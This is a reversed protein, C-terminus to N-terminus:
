RVVRAVLYASGALMLVLMARGAYVQVWQWGTLENRVVEVTEVRTRDTTTTQERIANSILRQLVTDHQMLEHILSGDVVQVRSRALYTNLESIARRTSDFFVTDRVVQGPLHVMITTDRQVITTITSTSDKITIPIRKYCNCGALAVSVLFIYLLKM